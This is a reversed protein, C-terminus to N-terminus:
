VRFGFGRARELNVVQDLEMLALQQQLPVRLDLTYAVPDVGDDVCRRCRPDLQRCTSSALPAPHPASVATTAAPILSVALQLLPPLISPPCQRCHHCCPHILSVALQIILQLLPAPHPSSVAPFSTVM